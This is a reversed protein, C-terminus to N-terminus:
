CQGKQVEAQCGAGQGSIPLLVILLASHAKLRSTDTTHSACNDELSLAAKSSLLAWLFHSLGRKNQM